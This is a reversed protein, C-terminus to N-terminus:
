NSKSAIVEFFKSFFFLKNYTDDAKEDLCLGLITNFISFLLELGKKDIDYTDTKIKFKKGTSTTKILKHLDTTSTNPILVSQIANFLEKNLFYNITQLYMEYQIGTGPYISQYSMFNEINKKTRNINSEEILSHYTRIFSDRDYENLQSIYERILKAFM